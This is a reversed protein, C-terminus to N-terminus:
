ATSKKRNQGKMYYSNGTKLCLITYSIGIILILLSIVVYQYYIKHDEELKSLITFNIFASSLAGLSSMFVLIAACRGRSERHVYDALLPIVSISIAGVAYVCRLFVYFPFNKFWPMTIM